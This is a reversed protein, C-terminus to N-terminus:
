FSLAGLLFFSRGSFSTSFAHRLHILSFCHSTCIISDLPVHDGAAPLHSGFLDTLVPFASQWPTMGLPTVTATSNLAGPFSPSKQRM